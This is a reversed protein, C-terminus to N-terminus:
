GGSEVWVKSREDDKLNYSCAQWASMIFLNRLNASNMVEWQQGVVEEWRCAFLKM